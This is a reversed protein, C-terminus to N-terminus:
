NSFVSNFDLTTQGGFGLAFGTQPPTLESDIGTCTMQGPGTSDGAPFPGTAQIVVTETLSDGVQILM